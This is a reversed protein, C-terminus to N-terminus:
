LRSTEAQYRQFLEDLHDVPLGLARRAQHRGRALMATDPDFRLDDLEIEALGGLHRVLGTTFWRVADAPHDHELLSEGIVNCVDPDLPCLRRAQNILALAEAERGQDFLFDAYFGHVGGAVAAGDALALKFLHEAQQYDGLMAYYEAAQSLTTARGDGEQDARHLLSPQRPHTRGGAAPEPRLVALSALPRAPPM